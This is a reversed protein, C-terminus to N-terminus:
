IRKIKQKLCDKPVLIFALYPLIKITGKKKRSITHPAYKEWHVRRPIPSILRKQLLSTSSPYNYGLSGSGSQFGVLVRTTTINIVM